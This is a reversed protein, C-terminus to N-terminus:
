KQKSPKNAWLSCNHPNKRVSAALLGSVFQSRKTNPKDFEVPIKKEQLRELMKMEFPLLFLVSRGKSDYRATPGVSCGLRGRQQFGHGNFVKLQFFFQDKNCYSCEKVQKM